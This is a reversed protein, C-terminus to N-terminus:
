QKTPKQSQRHDERQPVVYGESDIEVAQGTNKWFWEIRYQPLHGPRDFPVSRSSIEKYTQPTRVNPPPTIM